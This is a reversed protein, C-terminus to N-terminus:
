QVSEHEDATETFRALFWRPEGAVDYRIAVLSGYGEADGRNMELDITATQPGATVREVSVERVEGEVYAATISASKRQEAIITNLLPIDVDELSITSPRQTEAERDRPEATAYAVYWVGDFRRMGIVGPVVNGDRMLLRAQLRADDGDRDVGVIRLSRVNGSVLSEITQQSDLQEQWLRLAFDETM